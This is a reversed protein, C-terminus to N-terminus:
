DREINFYDCAERFMKRSTDLHLKEVTGVASAQHWEHEMIAKGYYIVKWGVHRAAYSVWTEEYYHPTPLFAGDVGPYLQATMLHVDDWCPKKIFYASGSVTVAEKVDRYSETNKSMWGRHRPKSNTGFIGAHTAKGVSNVQLPGLVGWDENSQLGEFCTDLTGPYLKTDANFFAYVDSDMLTSAFNCAGSYGVNTDTPYYIYPFDYQTLFERAYYELEETPDVDIVVLESTAYSAQAAFSDMFKRLDDPTRYNVVCLGLKSAM